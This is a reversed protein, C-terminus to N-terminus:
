KGELHHDQGTTEPLDRPFSTGDICTQGPIMGCLKGHTVTEQPGMEEKMLGWTRLCIVYNWLTCEYFLFNPIEGNLRIFGPYTQCM